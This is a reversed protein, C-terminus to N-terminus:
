NTKIIKGCFLTKDNEKIEYIYIGNTYSQTSLTTKGILPISIIPRSAIDTITLKLSSRQEPFEFSLIDHFPNPNVMLRLNAGISNLATFNLCSFGWYLAISNETLCIPEEWFGIGQMPTFQLGQSGGVSEIYYEHNSLYIIKRFTGDYLAVSGISDVVVGIGTFYGNLTDGPLLNFDYLLEDSNTSFDYTYVKRALTDERLYGVCINIGGNVQFPPCFPGPNIPIIPNAWISTYQFGLITTDTSFYYNSGGSLNCIQQGDGHLIQWQMNPRILPHYNQAFTSVYGFLFLLLFGTKM